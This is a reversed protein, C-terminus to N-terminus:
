GLFPFWQQFKESLYPVGEKRGAIAMILSFLWLALSIYYVYFGIRYQQLAVSVFLLILLGFMNKIHWTAFEEKPDRNMSIAIFLGIFTLYAVIAKIKGPPNKM